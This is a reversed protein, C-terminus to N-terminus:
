QNHCASAIAPDIVQSIRQASIRPNANDATTCASTRRAVTTRSSPSSEGRASAAAVPSPMADDDQEYADTARARDSNRLPALKLAAMAKSIAEVFRTISSPMM